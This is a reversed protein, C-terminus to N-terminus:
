IKKIVPKNPLPVLVRGKYHLKKKLIGIIEDAFNWGLIVVLSPKLAMVKKPSDIKIYTGATFLKHKLPNQDAISKIIRGDLGCFNLLTSSRASAGYGVIYDGGQSIEQLISALADRHAYSKEAFGRWKELTNVKKRLEAARYTKVRATEKTTTKRAYVIIAGGSIPSKLIDFVFLGFQNLLRELSKFTFYCLHEHYISDYQLGDLIAGAYHVEIALTGDKDLAFALSKVFDKTNAIHPLVNRAFIMKAKGYKKIVQRASKMGWFACETSVGNKRAIRVINGAPDIGLVTHKRRLFPLLFTGDNSAIELVYGERPNHTRKILNRYFAESFKCAVNSTGTVWVYHSFLKKPDVTYNLQVLSCDKCWVLELPYFSEKQRSFKLLSNALPQKGLNFFPTLQRGNCVRCKTTHSM